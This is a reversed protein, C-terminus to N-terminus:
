RLLSRRYTDEISKKLKESGFQVKKGEIAVGFIRWDQQDVGGGRAQLSTVPGPKATQPTPVIIPVLGKVGGVGGTIRYYIAM